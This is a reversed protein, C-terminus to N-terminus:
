RRLRTKNKVDDGCAPEPHFIQYSSKESTSLPLGLQKAGLQPKQM